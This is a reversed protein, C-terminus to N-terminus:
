MSCYYIIGANSLLNVFIQKVARRDAMVSITSEIDADLTLHKDEARGSVVRVLEALLKSLDLQEMDLKMRGAEIKSMDLIDNILELLHKGATHIDDGYEQYNDAGLAGFMESVMIESFGLIANLPTRLEHSM